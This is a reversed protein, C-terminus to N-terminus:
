KARSGVTSENLGVFLTGFPRNEKPVENQAKRSMGMLSVDKYFKEGM